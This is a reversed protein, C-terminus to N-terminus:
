LFVSLVRRAVESFTWVLVSGLATAAAIMTVPQARFLGRVLTTDESFLRRLHDIAFYGVVPAPLLIWLLSPGIM